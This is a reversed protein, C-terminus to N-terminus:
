ICLKFVVGNKSEAINLMPGAAAPSPLNAIRVPSKSGNTIAFNGLMNAEQLLKYFTMFSLKYAKYVVGDDTITDSVNYCYLGFNYMKIGSATADPQVKGAIIRKLFKECDAKSSEYTEQNSKLYNQVKEEPIDPIITRFIKHMMALPLEIVYGNAVQLVNVMKGNNALFDNKYVQFEEDDAPIFGYGQNYKIADSTKLFAYQLWAPVKKANEIDQPQVASVDVKSM